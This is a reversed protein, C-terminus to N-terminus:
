GELEKLHDKIWECYMLGDILEEQLHNIREMIAAPNSELGVGYKNTGKARQQEAIANIREWYPNDPSEPEYLDPCRDYYPEHPHISGRCHSCPSEHATKEEHKCGKCGDHDLVKGESIRKAIYDWCDGFGTASVLGCDFHVPCGYCSVYGTTERGYKKRAEQATM